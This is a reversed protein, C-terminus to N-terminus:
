LTIQGKIREYKAKGFRPIEMIQELRAFPGNKQRYEVIKEATSRGIGPLSDLQEANASNINIRATRVPPDVVASQKAPVFLKAGDKVPEALNIASLDASALAGGSLALLDLLRDGPKLRYVGERRVAGSLHVVIPPASASSDVKGGGEIVIAQSAGGSLQRFGTVGLGVVISVILGILILQQEKTLNLDM